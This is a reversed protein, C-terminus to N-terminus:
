HMGQYACAKPGCQNIRLDPEGPLHYCRRLMTGDDRVVLYPMCPESETWSGTNYYWYRAEPRWEVRAVDPCHTHGFVISSIKRDLNSHQRAAIAAQERWHEVTYVRELVPACKRKVWEWAGAANQELTMLGAAYAAPGDKERRQLMHATLRERDELEQKAADGYYSLTGADRAYLALARDYLHGHEIMIRTGRKAPPQYCIAPYWIAVRPLLLRAGAIGIDHNGALWFVSRARSFDYLAGLVAGFKGMLDDATYEYPPLDLLDGNLYLERTEPQITALFNLFGAQKEAGKDSTLWSDIHLDSVVVVQSPEPM